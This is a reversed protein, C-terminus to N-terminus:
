SDKDFIICNIRSNLRRMPEMVFPRLHARPHPLTLRPTSIKVGEIDIIDIDILRDKYSGDANRHSAGHGIEREIKQTIDLVEFPDIEVNNIYLVGRNLFTNPSVFGWPESEVYDSLLMRGAPLRKALLAIARGIIAM